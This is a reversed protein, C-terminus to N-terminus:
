SAASSDDSGSRAREIAKWLVFLAFPTILTAPVWPSAPVRYQRYWPTKKRLFPVHEALFDALWATVLIKKM